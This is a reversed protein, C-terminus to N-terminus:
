PMQGALRYQSGPLSEVVGKLELMLLIEQVKAAKAGARDIITDIHSPYPELIKM